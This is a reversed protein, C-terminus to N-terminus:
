NPSLILLERQAQALHHQLQELRKRKLEAKRNPKMLKDTAADEVIM